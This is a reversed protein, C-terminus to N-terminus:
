KRYIKEYHDYILHGNYSPICFPACRIHLIARNIIIGPFFFFFTSASLPRPLCLCITVGPTPCYKECKLTEIEELFFNNKPAKQWAGPLKYSLVM